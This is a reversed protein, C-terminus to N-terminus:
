HRGELKHSSMNRKAWVLIISGMHEDVQEQTLQLVLTEIASLIFLGVAAYFLLVSYYGSLFAHVAFICAATGAAKTTYLHLNAFRRFKFWGVLTFALSLVVATLWAAPHQTFVVPRLMLLWACASIVLLSDALTDFKSGFRTVQNLKRAITGDLADTLGAILLGIGVFVPLQLWALAWLIPILLLRLATLLNPITKM